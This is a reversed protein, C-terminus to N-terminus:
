DNNNVNEVNHISNMFSMVAERGCDTLSYNILQKETSMRKTHIFDICSLIGDFFIKEKNILENFKNLTEAHSHEENIFNEFSLKYENTFFKNVDVEKEEIYDSIYVFKQCKFQEIMNELEKIRAHAVNLENSYIKVEKVHNDQLKELKLRYEKGKFLDKLM